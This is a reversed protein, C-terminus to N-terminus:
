PAPNPSPHAALFRDLDAPQSIGRVTHLFTALDPALRRLTQLKPGIPDSSAAGTAYSGHFAFYAQNLKRIPYGHEVFFRRRDEMYNEAEVIKGAALLDDVHLRTRRMETNFDFQNPDPPPPPPPPGPPPPPPYPIGYLDHALKQGVEEGVITAVTENITRMQPSAAMNWGLPHFALYNHVWEHAITELIWSLSAEDMVMTPWVGLGGLGEILTSRDFRRAVDDEIRTITPTDLDPQLHLSTELEIRDRPSVILYNPLDSFDFRVPPFVVGATTLDMDALMTRVQNELITEVLPRLGTQLTRLHALQKRSDATAAAPDAVAPDAYTRNITQELRSIQGSRLRYERVLRRQEDPNLRLGPRRVLDRLKGTIATAEYRWLDFRQDRVTAAVAQKLPSPPDFQRWLRLGLLLTVGGGILVVLAIAIFFASRRSRKM